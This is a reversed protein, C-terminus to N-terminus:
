SNQAMRLFWGCPDPLPAEQFGASEAKRLDKEVPAKFASTDLLEEPFHMLERM